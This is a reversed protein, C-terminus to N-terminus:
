GYEFQGTKVVVNRADRIEWFPAPALGSKNKLIDEEVVPTYAINSPNEYNRYELSVLGTSWSAKVTLSNNLPGGLSLSAPRNPEINVLLRNEENPINSDALQYYTKSKADLRIWSKKVQYSGAPLIYTLDERYPLCFVSGMLNNRGQVRHCEMYFRQRGEGKIKLQGVAGEYPKFFVKAETATYVTRAEWLENELNVIGNASFWTDRMPNFIGDQDTDLLIVENQPFRNSFPSRFVLRANYRTKGIQVAGEYVSTIQTVQNSVGNRLFQVEVRIRIPQSAERIPSSVCVEPFILSPSAISNQSRFIENPQCQGDQNGDYFLRYPKAQSLYLKAGERGYMDLIFVEEPEERDLRMMAQKDSFFSLTEFPWPNIAEEPMSPRLILISEEGLATAPILLFLLFFRIWM